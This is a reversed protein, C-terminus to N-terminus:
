KTFSIFSKKIPPLNDPSLDFDTIIRQIKQTHELVSRYIVKYYKVEQMRKVVREFGFLEVLAQYELFNVIIHVYNSYKSRCGDPFGIPLDPFMNELELIAKKSSSHKEKLCLFWHLQEHLYNALLADSNGLYNTSRTKPSLTLIPHSHPTAGDEIIAQETFFWKDLNYTKFLNM